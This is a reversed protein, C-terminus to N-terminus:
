ATLILKDNSTVRLRYERGHHQIRVEKEGAFLDRADISRVQPTLIGSAATAPPNVNTPENSM